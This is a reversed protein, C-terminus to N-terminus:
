NDDRIDIAIDYGAWNDVGAQELCTLWRDRKQLRINEKGLKENLEKQETFKKIFYVMSQKNVEVMEKNTPEGGSQKVAAAITMGKLEKIGRLNLLNIYQIKNM